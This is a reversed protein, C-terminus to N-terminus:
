GVLRVGAKRWLFGDPWETDNRCEAGHLRADDLEVGPLEM